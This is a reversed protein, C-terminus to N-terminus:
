KRQKQSNQKRLYTKYDKKQDDTLLAKVSKEFNSKLTDMEERNPKTNGSTKAEVEEFHEQYLFLVSAEQEDSLSIETVLDSVMKEIQKETPIPPPGQQEGRQGGPPQAYTLGSILLVIIAFLIKIKNSILHKM